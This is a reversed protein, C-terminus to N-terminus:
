GHGVVDQQHARVFLGAERHRLDQTAETILDGGNGVPTVGPANQGAIPRIQDQQVIRPGFVHAGVHHLSPCLIKRDEKEAAPVPHLRGQLSQTEPRGLKQGFRHVRVLQGTRSPPEDVVDQKVPAALEVCADQPVFCGAEQHALARRQPPQQGVERGHRRRLRGDQDEAFATDALLLDGLLDM